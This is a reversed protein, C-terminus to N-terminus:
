DSRVARFYTDDGSKSFGFITGNVFRVGMWTSHRNIHNSMYGSYNEYHTNPFIFTDIAPKKSGNACNSNVTISNGIDKNPTDVYMQGNERRAWGNTCKRLSVLEDISPIRWNSKNGVSQKNLSKIYRNVDYADIRKANGVCTKGNWNQGYSCRMWILGTKPDKWQGTAMLTKNTETKSVKEKHTKTNSDTSDSVLKEKAMECSKRDRAVVATSDELTLLFLDKSISSPVVKDASKIFGNLDLETDICKTKSRNDLNLNVIHADNVGAVAFQCGCVTLICSALLKKM